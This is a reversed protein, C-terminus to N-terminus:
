SSISNTDQDEGDEVQVFVGTHAYKKYEETEVNLQLRMSSLGAVAALLLIITVAAVTFRYSWSFTMHKLDTKAAKKKLEGAKIGFDRLGIVAAPILSIFYPYAYPSKAEWFTHFIFGGLFILPFILGDAFLDDKRKCNIWLFLAVGTWVLLQYPEYVFSQVYTSVRGTLAHMFSSNSPGEEMVQISRNARYTPDSWQHVQKRTMFNLMYAPDSLFTEVREKYIKTSLEGQAKKDGDLEVFSFANFGNYGGAFNQTDESAGMALYSMYNTGRTKYGSINCLIQGPILSSAAMVAILCATPIMKLYRGSSLCRFILWIILAAIMVFSNQKFLCALGAFIVALSGKIICEKRGSSNVFDLLFRITLMCFALGEINGYVILIYLFLPLYILGLFLILLQGTGGLGLRKGIASLEEYFLVLFILNIVMIVTELNNGAVLSLLYYFIVLGNLHPYIDLYGLHMFSSHDGSHLGEVAELISRSDYVQRYDSIFILIIGFVFILSLILAKFIFLNRPINLYDRIKKVFGTKPLAYFLFLGAALYLINVIFLDKCYFNFELEDCLVRSTTFINLVLVYVAAAFSLCVIINVYFSRSFSKLQGVPKITM